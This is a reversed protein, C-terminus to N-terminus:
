SQTRELLSNNQATIYVSAFSYLESYQLCDNIIEHMKHGNVLARKSKKKEEYVSDGHCFITKCKAYNFGIGKRSLRSFNLSSYLLVTKMQFQQLRSM